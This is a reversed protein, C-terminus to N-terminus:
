QDQKALEVAIRVQIDELLAKVSSSVGLLLSQSEKLQRQMNDLSEKSFNKGLLQYQFQKLEDLMTLGKSLAAKEQKSSAQLNVFSVSSNPSTKQISSIEPESTEIEDPEVSFKAKKLKQQKAISKLHSMAQLQSGLDVKM